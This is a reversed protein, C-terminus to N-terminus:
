NYDQAAVFTIGKGRDIKNQNHKDDAAYKPKTHVWKKWLM